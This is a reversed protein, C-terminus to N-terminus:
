LPASGPSKTGDIPVLLCTWRDRGPHRHNGKRIRRWRKCGNVLLYTGFPQLLAYTLILLTLLIRRGNGGVYSSRSVKAFNYTTVLPHPWAHALDAMKLGARRASVVRGFDLTAEHSRPEEIENLRVARLGRRSVAKCREPGNVSSLILAEQAYQSSDFAKIM